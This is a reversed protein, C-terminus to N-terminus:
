RLSIRLTPVAIEKKTRVAAIIASERFMEGPTQTVVGGSSTRSKCFAVLGNGENPVFVLRLASRCRTALSLDLLPTARLLPVKCRAMQLDAGGGFAHPNGEVLSPIFEDWRGCWFEALLKARLSCLSDFPTNGPSNGGAYDQMMGKANLTLLGETTEFNLRRFDFLSFVFFPRHPRLTQPIADNRPLM